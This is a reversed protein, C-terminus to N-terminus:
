GLRKKVKYYRKGTQDTVLCVFHMLHDDTTNFNEFEQQRFKQTIKKEPTVTKFADEIDIDSEPLIAMEHKSSFTPESVDCNLEITYGKILTNNAIEVLDDIKVNLFKGNSFNDPINLIFNTYFPVDSFSTISIYDKPNLKTLKLFSMPTYEAGEFSFSSINEGLRSDLIGNVDEKWNSTYKKPDEIYKKLTKTLTDILKSHDHIETTHKLGSYVDNPVLGFAEM